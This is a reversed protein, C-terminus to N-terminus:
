SLSLLILLGKNSPHNWLTAFADRQGKGESRWTSSALKRMKTAAKWWMGGFSVCNVYDWNAEDCVAPFNILVLGVYADNSQCCMFGQPSLGGKERWLSSSFLCFKMKLSQARLFGTRFSSTKQLPSLGITKVEIRKKEKRSKWGRKSGRFTSWDDGFKAFSM